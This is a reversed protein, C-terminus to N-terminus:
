VSLKQQTPTKVSVQQLEEWLLHADHLLHFVEPIRRQLGEERDHTVAQTGRESIQNLRTINVQKVPDASLAHNVPATKM